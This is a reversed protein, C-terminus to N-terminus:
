AIALFIYSGGSANIAAPATSSIEFGSNATDIYDTNTVEAATSNLLLYPDDGAIIGRASDWVYWGGTGNIRKILVFRAGGTFGCNITQAAGTGTYRGVKSVGPCTAFLYAAYTVGSTNLYTTFTTSTAGQINGVGMGVAASSNLLLEDIYPQDTLPSSVSWDGTASRTKVILLDPVGGLNHNIAKPFADNGTYCVVDFFSPARRFFEFVTSVGSYYPGYTAGTNNPSYYALSGSAQTFEAATSSTKIQQVSSSSNAAFGRLRDEFTWNGSDAGDRQGFLTADFPFGVTFASGSSPTVAAPAFVSTGLTPVKMPGRRIAIYIHTSDATHGNYNAKPVFGTATFNLVNFSGTEANNTNATLFKTGGVLPTGRMNDYMYWPGTTNVKKVMVWQPEYGLNVTANGSGDCTFSGCSIVNDTGSLGFGGADNAFVYAVYNQSTGNVEGSGSVTFNTSTPATYNWAGYGQPANTTNLFVAQSEGLSIHYVIWDIGGTTLNKVIICGPVSGLSHPIARGATANGTWTVVDFFKPQKRFTWSVLTKASSWYGQDIYGNSLPSVVYSAAAATTNNSNLTNNFSSTSDQLYHNDANNREKIWVLGGKTSLDIGNTITQTGGNGTYLYTSFVDEIYQPVAAAGGGFGDYSAAGSTAQLPM